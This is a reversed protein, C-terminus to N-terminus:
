KQRQLSHLSLPHGLLLLWLLHGLGGLLLYLDGEVLVLAERLQNNAVEVLKFLRALLGNLLRFDHVLDNLRQHHVVRRSSGHLLCGLHGLLDGVSDIMQDSLLADNHDSLVALHLVLSKEAEVDVDIHSAEIHAVLSPPFVGSGFLNISDVTTMKALVTCM